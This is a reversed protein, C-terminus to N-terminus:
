AGFAHNSAKAGVFGSDAREMDLCKNCVGRYYLQVDDVRGEGIDGVQSLSPAKTDFLDFVKGCRKCFFHVHPTLNGDYCVRHDDITIMQAAHHEAFLRLTNYLTTRSLTMIRPKLAAYIEEITPHTPHLMLYSMIALRQMSPRLGCAELRQYAAPEYM